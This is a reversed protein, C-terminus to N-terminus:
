FNIFLLLLPIFDKLKVRFFKLAQTIHYEVVKVSVKEKEAIEKYTLGEIRSKVFTNYVKEPLQSFAKSIHENLQSAIMLQASDHNLASLNAKYERMQLDNKVKQGLSLRKLVNIAKNRIISYLYPQVPYNLDLSEKNVWLAIFSDQVVDESLEINRLYQNTYFVAKKYEAKYFSEFAKRNGQAILSTLKQPELLRLNKYFYVFNQSIPGIRM